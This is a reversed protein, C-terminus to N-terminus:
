NAQKNKRHQTAYAIKICQTNSGSSYGALSMQGLSEGSLFVPTPQRQRGGPSRGSGPVSGLDGENWATEKSVSSCPLQWLEYWKCINEEM